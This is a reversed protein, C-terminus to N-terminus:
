IKKALEDIIVLALFAFIISAIGAQSKFWALIYGLQSISGILKGKVQGSFVPESSLYQTADGQTLYVVQKNKTKKEVVRHIILKEDLEYAIIEGPYYAAAAKYIALSGVPLNPEMSSSQVIALQYWRDVVPILPILLLTAVVLAIVLAVNSTLRVVKKM